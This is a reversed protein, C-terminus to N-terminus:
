PMRPLFISCTLTTKYTQTVQAVIWFSWCCNSLLMLLVGKIWHKGSSPDHELNKDHHPILHHHLLLKFTPGSYLAMTVAGGTCLALGAVKAIGSFTRLNAKELRFLLALIFTVVPIANTTASALAASTYKLAVGYINLTATIGFLSVM